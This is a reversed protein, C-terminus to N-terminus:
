LNAGYNRAASEAKKNIVLELGNFGSEYGKWVVIDTKIESRDSMTFIGDYGEITDTGKVMRKEIRFRVVENYPIMLFESPICIRHPALYYTKLMPEPAEEGIVNRWDNELERFAKKLKPIKVTMQKVTVCVGFVTAAGSTIVMLVVYTSIHYRGFFLALAAMFAFFMTVIISLRFEQMCLKYFWSKRYGNQKM